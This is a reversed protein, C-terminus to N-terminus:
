NRVTLFLLRLLLINKYRRRNQAIRQRNTFRARPLSRHRASASRCNQPLNSVTRASPIGINKGLRHTLATYHRKAAYGNRANAEAHRETLRYELQSM